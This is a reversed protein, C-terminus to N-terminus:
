VRLVTSFSWRSDCSTRGDTQGDRDSITDLCSFM